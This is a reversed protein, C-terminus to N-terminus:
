IAAAVQFVSAVGGLVCPSRELLEATAAGYARSEQVTHGATPGTLEYINTAMLEFVLSRSGHAPQDYGRM